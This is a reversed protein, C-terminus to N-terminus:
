LFVGKLIVLGVADPTIVLDDYKALNTNLAVSLTPANVQQHEMSTFKLAEPCVFTFAEAVEFKFSFMCSHDEEAAVIVSGEDIEIMLGKNSGTGIYQRYNGTDWIEPDSQMFLGGATTNSLYYNAGEDYDGPLLGGTRVWFVDASIIRCVLGICRANALSDAKALVWTGSSNIKVAQGVTFGHATQVINETVNDDHIERWLARITEQMKPSGTWLRLIDRLGRM